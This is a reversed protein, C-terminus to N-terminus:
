IKFGKTSIASREGKKNKCFIRIRYVGSENAKYEFKDNNSYKSKFIVENNKYVYYALTNEKIYNIVEVFIIKDKIHYRYDIIKNDYVSAKNTDEKSKDINKLKNILYSPFYMKVLKHGEYDMLDLDYKYDNDKFAKELYKIHNKYHHDNKSVHIDIYTKSAYNNQINKFLLNNLYQKDEESIGGAVYKAIEIHKAQDILFNGLMSQPAGAIINGVKRKIGYYLATYGGKSSGIMITNKLNIKQELLIKNILNNVSEEITFKRNKGILYSGQVDFNDLIFLKNYQIEKLTSVYSYSYTYKPQMSPFIICLKNSNNNKYYLYKIVEKDVYAKENILIDKINQKINKYMILQTFVKANKGSFMVAVNFISERKEMKPFQWGQIKKGDLGKELRLKFETDAFVKLIGIEKSDKFIKITNNEIKLELKRSFHWNIEYLNEVESLITDEIELVKTSKTFRVKRKHNVNDYRDNEGLVESYGDCLHYDLIKVKNFKNDTRPLQNNSVTLTNHARSSYSYKTFPDKYNYGNPGSEVLIDEGDYFLVNLDDTHKHYSSHYAATFVVQANSKNWGDRFIAYGSNKYVSDLHSPKTGEKGCSYIFKYEKSSFIAKQYDNLEKIETDSINPLKGDLRMIDIAFREAGKLKQEIDSVTIDKDSGLKIIKMCRNMLKTIMLHYMPAHEKVIGESTYIYNFYENLRKIAMDKYKNSNKRELFTSYKLLAIDQLMGHNTLRAHFSDLYLLDATEDIKKLLFKLLNDNLVNALRITFSVMNELRGATTEDHFAMTNQRENITNEDFWRKIIYISKEIYLYNKTKEYAYYLDLLFSFNNILRLYSRSYKAEDIWIKSDNILEFGSFKETNIINKNVIDNSILISNKSDKQELYPYINKYDKNKLLNCYEM